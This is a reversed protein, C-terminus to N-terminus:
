FGATIRLIKKIGEQNYSRIMDPDFSHSLRELSPASIQWGLPLVPSYLSGGSGAVCTATIWVSSYDSRIGPFQTSDSIYRYQLTNDASMANGYIGSNVIGVLPSIPEFRNSVLQRTDPNYYPSNTLSVFYFRVKKILRMFLSDDTRLCGQRALSIFIDESTSAGSNDKGGGDMFHYGAGIKGSPSIFPFRASLFAGTILPLTAQAPLRDRIFIAGPFDNKSLVIPAMIGKLGDDVNLTNSFLLPVEYRAPNAASTDWLFDFANNLQIDLGTRGFGAWIREQIAARDEWVPYGVASAWVDRGIMSGLVPTLFDHKYFDRFYQLSYAGASSDLHRYRYACQVTAGITGGSAGSVSFVFHEFGKRNKSTTILTSDLWSFMMNTFSAAKIGGGYSNVLFVPYNDPGNLIEDKRQLLWGKFYNNLTPPSAVRASSTLRVAHFDNPISIALILGTILIFFVLNIKLWLSLRILLTFLIIYFIIGALLVPLTLYNSDLNLVSSPFINFLIFLLALLLGGLIIPWGIHRGILGQGTFINTRTSVFIWFAKALLLLHIFLWILAGPTNSDEKLLSLRILGPLIFALLILTTIFITNATAENWRDKIWCWVKCALDYKILVFFLSLLAVLWIIPPFIDLPYHIRLARLANLIATAPIIITAVGLYRSVKKESAERIPDTIVPEVMPCVPGKYEQEFFLKALWWNLLAAMCVVGVFLVVGNDSSNSNVLLDQGQDMIWIPLSFAVVGILIVRYRFLQISKNRIYGSLKQLGKDKIVLTFPLYLFLIFALIIFKTMAVAHTLRATFETSHSTNNLGDRIFQLMGINEIVDCIGAILPLALLVHSFWSDTKGIRSQLAAIIIIGLATYLLIFLFDMRVDTRAKHLRNIASSAASCPNATSRDLTDQEWSRVIAGDAARTPGLELSVIGKPAKDNKLYTQDKLQLFAVIFTATFVPWFLLKFNQRVFHYLRSIPFLSM